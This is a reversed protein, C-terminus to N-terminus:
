AVRTARYRRGGAHMIAIDGDPTSVIHGVVVWPGYPNRAWIWNSDDVPYKVGNINYVERFKPAPQRYNPVPQRYNPVPQRYDPVFCCIQASLAPAGFSALALLAITLLRGSKLMPRSFRTMQFMPNIEM